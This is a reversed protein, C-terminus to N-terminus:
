ATVGYKLTSSKNLLLLSFLLLTRLSTYDAYTGYVDVFLECFPEYPCLEERDLVEATRLVGTVEDLDFQRSSSSSSRLHYTLQATVPRSSDETQQSVVGVRTGVPAEEPISFVLPGSASTTSLTSVFLILCRCLTVSNMTSIPEWVADSVVLLVSWCFDFTVFLPLQQQQELCWKPSSPVCSRCNVSSISINPHMVHDRVLVSLYHCQVIHTNVM